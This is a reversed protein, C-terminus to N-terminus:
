KLGQPKLTITPLGACILSVKRNIDTNWVIETQATGNQDTQLQPADPTGNQANVGIFIDPVSNGYRDKINVQLISRDPSNNDDPMLKGTLIAPSTSTVICPFHYKSNGAVACIEFSGSHYPTINGQQDVFHQGLPDGWVVSSKASIAADAPLHFTFSQGATLTTMPLTIDQLSQSSASSFVLLSDAIPRPQGGSPANVYLGDLYMSSSGGGDLNMAQVAGLQAMISALQTLTVGVSDTKRGDITVLLLSGDAMIGAATRPNRHDVLSTDTFGELSADMAPKGNQVLWPGGSIAQTVNQWDSQQIRGQLRGARSAYQGRNFPQILPSCVCDFRFKVIDGAKVHDSLWKGGAGSGALLINGHEIPMDAFGPEPTNATGNVEKGPSPAGSLNSLQVVTAHNTVHAKASFEPTLVVIEGAGLYRNIGDVSSIAGDAATIQGITQITSMLVQSHDTFGMAVRWPMSESLLEGDHIALGLPDATVNFFDGNIAALAHNRDAISGVPERSKLPPDPLIMDHAIDTKVYVGSTKLNIKLINIILPASGTVKEQAFQVGPSIDAFNIQGYANAIFFCPIFFLVLQCCIVSSRLVV